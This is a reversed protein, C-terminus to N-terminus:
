HGLINPFVNVTKERTVTSRLCMVIFYNFLIMEDCYQIRFDTLYKIVKSFSGNSIRGDNM